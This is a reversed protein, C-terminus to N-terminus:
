RVPLKDGHEDSIDLTAADALRFRGEGKQGPVGVSSRDPVEARAILVAMRQIMEGSFSAPMEPRTSWTIHGIRSDSPQYPEPCNSVHDTLLQISRPRSTPM